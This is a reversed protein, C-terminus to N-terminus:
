PLVRFRRSVAETAQYAGAGPDSSPAHAGVVVKVRAADTVAGSPLRWRFRRKRDPLADTVLQWSAGDDPSFWLAQFLTAGRVRATWAVRLPAGAHARTRHRPARIRVHPARGARPAAITVPRCAENNSTDSEPFLQLYNLTVCLDYDGPPVDTVDIWQCPLGAPYLDGWGHQIGQVNGCDASCCYKRPASSAVPVSDTMCFARKQGVVAVTGDGRRLEYRAFSDFHFHGHCASYVWRPDDFSPMGAVLDAGQNVALVGFRLLKRAGPAGVCLDAPQLECADPAFTRLDFSPVLTSPDLTLDPLAQAGALPAGALCALLVRLALRTRHM